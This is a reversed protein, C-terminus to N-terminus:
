LDKNAFDELYGLLEEDPLYYHDYNVRKAVESPIVNGLLQQVRLSPYKQLLQTMLNLVQLNVPM